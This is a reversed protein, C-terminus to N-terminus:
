LVGNNKLQAYINNLCIDLTHEVFEYKSNTQLFDGCLSCLHKDEAYEDAGEILIEDVLIENLRIPM